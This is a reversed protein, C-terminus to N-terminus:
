KKRQLYREFIQVNLEHKNQSIHQNLEIWHKFKAHFAACAAYFYAMDPPKAVNYPEDFKYQSYVEGMNTEPLLSEPIDTPLTKLSTELTALYKLCFDFNPKLFRKEKSHLWIQLLYVIQYYKTKTIEFLSVLDFYAALAKLNKIVNEEHNTEFSSLYINGCLELCITLIVHPIINSFQETCKEVEVKLLEIYLQYFLYPTQKTNEWQLISQFIGILINKCRLIIQYKEKRSQILEEQRPDEELLKVWKGYPFFSAFSKYFETTRNQSLDNIELDHTKFINSLIFREVTSGYIRKEDELFGYFKPIIPRILRFDNQAEKEGSIKAESNRDNYDKKYCDYLKRAFDKNALNLLKQTETSEQCPSIEQHSASSSSSTFKQHVLNDAKAYNLCVPYLQEQTNLYSFEENSLEYKQGDQFREWNNNHYNFYFARYKGTRKNYAIINALVYKIQRLEPVQYDYVAQNIGENEKIRLSNLKQEVNNKIQNLTNLSKNPDDLFTTTFAYPYKHVTKSLIESVDAFIKNLPAKSDGFNELRNIEEKIERSRVQLREKRAKLARKLKRKNELLFEDVYFEKQVQYLQHDNELNQPWQLYIPFIEPLQTIWHKIEANMMEGTDPDQVSGEKYNFSSYLDTFFNENQCDIQWPCLNTKNDLKYKYDDDFFSQSKELCSGLLSNAKIFTEENSADLLLGQHIFSLLDKIIHKLDGTDISQQSYLKQYYIFQRIASLLIKPNRFESPEYFMKVTDIFCRIKEVQTTDGQNSYKELQHYSTKFDRFKQNYVKIDCLNELFPFLIDQLDEEQFSLNHGASQMKSVFPKPFCLNQSATLHATDPFIHTQDNM